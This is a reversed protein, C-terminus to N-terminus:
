PLTRENVVTSHNPDPNDEGTAAPPSPSIVTGWKLCGGHHCEHKRETRSRRGLLIDALLGALCPLIGVWGLPQEYREEIM